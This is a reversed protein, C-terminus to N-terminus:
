GTQRDTGENYKGTRTGRQRKNSDDRGDQVERRKKHEDRLPWSVATQCFSHGRLEKSFNNATFDLPSALALNLALPFSLWFFSLIVTPLSM